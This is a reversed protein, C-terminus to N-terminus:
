RIRGSRSDCTIPLRPFHTLGYAGWGIPGGFGATCGRTGGGEIVLYALLLWTAALGGYVWGRRRWAERFSGAVFTRDYLLVIVPASVMVEKSAMGLLCAAISLWFWIPRQSETGRIFAYLTLLYFLGM